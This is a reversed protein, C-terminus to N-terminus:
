APSRTKFKIQSTAVGALIIAAALLIRPTIEEGLMAWGAIVAIVPVVYLSAGVTSPRLHGAAYNWSLVAASGGVFILFALEAMARAELDAIANFTNGSMFPLLPLAIIINSLGTIKLAGYKQILPRGYVVFVSWVFCGAFLMACGLLLPSGFGVGRSMDDRWVLLGSGALSILLGLVAMPSLRESGAFFAVIAIQLPALSMILAGAGAPVYTFGFVTGIYYGLLGLISIFILKPWDPRDLRFGTTMALLVIFVLAVAIVRVVLADYPGLALSIGRVFVPTIGWVLQTFVLAIIASTAHNQMTPM